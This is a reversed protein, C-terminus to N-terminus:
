QGIKDFSAFMDDLDISSSSTNNNAIINKDDVDKKKDNDKINIQTIPQENKVTDAADKTVSSPTEVVDKTDSQVDNEPTSTIVQSHDIAKRLSFSSNKTYGVMPLYTCSNRFLAKVFSCRYGSKLEKLFECVKRERENKENLHIHLRVCKPVYGETVSPDEFDYLAINEDNIYNVLTRKMLRCLHIEKNFFLTLLDMDHQRYLRVVLIM